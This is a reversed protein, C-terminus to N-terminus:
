RALAARLADIVPRTQPRVGRWVFFSEAAQEVLMGLGDSVRAAGHTSAWQMFVTPQAGYMMDYCFAGPALLDDPLPPLDGQLSAATGNIVLDFQLGSLAEFSCARLLGAAGFEQVLDEAREVTRNGIVLQAPSEDLLPGLVGRVAGGAGLILVRKGTITAGHNDRIDRLLGVGDTNDGFLKGDARLTITNVAGARQARASREDVLEWAERKFPVTVNLGKGGNAQFNGVAQRFGGPDVQIATYEIRQNTQQAFLAHIRPSKSHAIPHGMVAYQDPPATFDFLSTM